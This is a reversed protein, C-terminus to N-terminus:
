RSTHTTTSRNPRVAVSLSLKVKDVPRDSELLALRVEGKDSVASNIATIHDNIVTNGDNVGPLTLFSTCLRFSLPISEKETVLWSWAGWSYPESQRHRSGCWQARLYLRRTFHVDRIQVSLPSSYSSARMLPVPTTGATLWISRWGTSCLLSRISYQWFFFM